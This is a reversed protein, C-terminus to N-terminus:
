CVVIWPLVYIVRRKCKCHCRFMKCFSSIDPPKTFRARSTRKMHMTPINCSPMWKSDFWKQLFHYLIDKIVIFFITNHVYCLHKDLLFTIDWHCYCWSWILIPQYIYVNLHMYIYIYVITDIKKHLNLLSCSSLSCSSCFCRWTRWISSASVWALHCFILCISSRVSSTFFSM